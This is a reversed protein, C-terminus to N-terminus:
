ENRAGERLSPFGPLVVVNQRIRDSELIGDDRLYFKLTFWKIYFTQAMIIIELTGDGASQCCLSRTPINMM